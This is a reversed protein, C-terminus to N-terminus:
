LSQKSLSSSSLSRHFVDQHRGYGEIYRSSLHTGAMGKTSPDTGLAQLLTNIAANNAVAFRQDFAFTRWFSFSYIPHLKHGKISSRPLLFSSARKIFRCANPEPGLTNAPLLLKCLLICPILFATSHTACVYAHTFIDLPSSPYMSIGSLLKKQLPPSPFLQPQCRM